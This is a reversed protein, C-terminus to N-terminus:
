RAPFGSHTKAPNIRVCFSASSARSAFNSSCASPRCWKGWSPLEAIRLSASQRRPLERGSPSLSLGCAARANPMRCSSARASCYDQAPRRGGFLDAEICVLEARDNAIWTRCRREIKSDRTTALIRQRAEIWRKLQDIRSNKM